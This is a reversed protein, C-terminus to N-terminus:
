RGGTLLACRKKRGTTATSRTSTRDGDANPSPAVSWSITGPEFPTSQTPKRTSVSSPVTFPQMCSGSPTLGQFTKEAAAASPETTNMAWSLAEPPSTPEIQSSFGSPYDTWRSSEVQSKSGVIEYSPDFIVNARKSGVFPLESM